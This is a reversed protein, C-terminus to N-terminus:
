RYVETSNREAGSDGATTGGDKAFMAYSYNAPEEKVLYRM